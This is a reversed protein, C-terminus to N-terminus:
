TSVAVCFYSFAHVKHIITYRYATLSSKRGAPKAVLVRGLYRVQFRQVLENKPAPFESPLFLETM